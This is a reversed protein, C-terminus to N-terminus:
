DIIWKGVRFFSGGNTNRCMRKEEGGVDIIILLAAQGNCHKDIRLNSLSLFPSFLCLRVLNNAQMM